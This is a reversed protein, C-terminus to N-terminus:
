AAVSLASYRVSHLLTRRLSLGILSSLGPVYFSVENILVREYECNLMRLEGSLFAV